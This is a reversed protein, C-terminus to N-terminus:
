PRMKVTKGSDSDGDCEMVAVAQSRQNESWTKVCFHHPPLKMFMATDVTPSFSLTAIPEGRLGDSSDEASTLNVSLFGTSRYSGLTIAAKGFETDIVVRSDYPTAFIPPKTNDM